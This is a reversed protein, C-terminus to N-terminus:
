GRSGALAYYRRDAQLEEAKQYALDRLRLIREVKLPCKCKPRPLITPGILGEVELTFEYSDKEGCDPCTLRFSKM